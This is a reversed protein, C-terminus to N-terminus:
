GPLQRFRRGRRILDALTSRLESESPASIQEVLCGRTRLSEATSAMAVADSGVITVRSAQCAEDVNFGVTPRFREVYDLTAPLVWRGARGHAGVSGDGAQILLYHYIAGAPSGSQQSPTANEHTSRRRHKKLQKLAQVAPLTSTDRRYWAHQDTPEHEAAALTWFALNFVHAPLEGDLMLRAAEVTRVSHTADDLPPFAPDAQTGPILITKGCILPLSQGLRDRLLADYWEYLHWGRHDQTGRPTEYPRGNPWREPGGKGWALPRNGLDHHICLGLHELVHQRGDRALLRLLEGLFTLDWYHGGPALPSLLPFLGALHITEIAPFLLGAFREVLGPTSWDEFRWGTALNPEAYVYAYYVGWEAYTRCLTLLDLRDIPQIPRVDLHIVPEIDAAILERVFFEPIPQDVRSPLVLWSAGLDKLEALWFSLSQQDYHAGDDIYRFGLGTDDRPRPYQDLRM